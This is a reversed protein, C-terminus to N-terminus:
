IGNEIMKILIGYFDECLREIYDVYELLVLFDIGNDIWKIDYKM